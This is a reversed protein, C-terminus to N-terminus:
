GVRYAYPIAVVQDGSGSDGNFTVVLISGHVVTGKAATPTFTVTIAGTGGPALTLGPTPASNDIDLAFWIDGADSSVSTDFADTVILASLDATAGPGVGNPPFPGAAEVLGFYQGVALPNASGQMVALNGPLSTALIDPDGGGASSVDMVIPVTGRAVVVVHSSSPPVFFFPQASLPLPLPINTAPGGNFYGLVPQATQQSLRPDAFYSEVSNGTNKITVRARVAVGQTLTTSASDPVGVAIVAPANFDIHATFPDLLQGAPQGFGFLTTQWGILTWRGPTPTRLFFQMTSSGGTDQGDLAQGHPDVLYGFAEVPNTLKLGINISPKDAPVEFQYSRFQGLAGAGFTFAGNFDGGAATLPVLSRLIIPISTDSASGTSLRLSMAEDGPTVPTTVHITLHASDGTGLTLSAPSVSGAPEFRQTFHDFNVVGTFRARVSWIIATWTGAMPKRVESHARGSGQNGILTYGAVAGSPDFVTEEVQGAPNATPDWGIENNLYDVGAPVTFTHTAYRTSQGRDDIFTPSAASLTVSGADNSAKTPSFRVVAPKLTTTSGTNTVDLSFQRNSGARATAILSSKNALLGGIAGSPGNSGNNSNGESESNQDAGVSMATQVAKLTNVLGAGQHDAPASLDTASSVLIRKVLAPAPSAGNHTKRYADIVLAASGSILPSSLSTGGAAWINAGPSGPLEFNGCGFFHAKDASCLSWGRDGPAVVDVARPGFQTTGGSSLATINNDEWGGPVLNTAYRTTQRYARWTTSGGANIIGPDSAPAGITGSPGADGTSAVVTVGAAVAAQDALSVPDNNTDPFPNGGFSENLVNVHDVNVAWEIAQIIQSNFFGAAPGSVNMVAVSAAPAVGKIRINCGPPLPHAPNVFTSLDYSQRGQSAMSSADLFSERGDTPANNGYGSFDRFDFIVHEGNARILDPNNPDIGDAILGIRVGSGDVLDHAAPRNDGAQFEVNMVQLAEPELLPKSPDSPCIAQPDSAPGAATGADSTTSSTSSALLTRRLDPVVAQVSSDGALRTAEAKSITASMANVLHYTKLNPAHLQKLESKIPAQDSDIAVNRQNITAPKAPAEPHQNKLIVISAQNADAALQTIQAASLNGLAGGTPAQARSQAAQAPAVAAFALMVGASAFWLRNPRAAM